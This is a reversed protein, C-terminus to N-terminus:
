FIKDRLIYLISINRAEINVSVFHFEDGCGARLLVEPLPAAPFKVWASEDASTRSAKAFREPSALCSSPPNFLCL